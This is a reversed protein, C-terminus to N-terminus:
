PPASPATTPARRTGSSCSSRAATTSTPWCRRPRTRAATPRCRAHAFAQHGRRARDQAAPRPPAQRGADRHRGQALHGRGPEQHRGRHGQDAHALPDPRRPERRGPERGRLVEVRRRREQREPDRPGPRRRGARDAAASAADPKPRLVTFWLAGIVLLAGLAIRYPLSIQEVDRGEADPGFDQPSNPRSWRSSPWSACSRRRRGAGARRDAPRAGSATKPFAIVDRISDRGALMAVIRDIGLAIGGHPPAGYRLADLLFGFRASRRRRTSARAGRLGAGPGRADHIRISGGGIESGDLSSTTARALAARRPRRPRGDARHVPPADRDLAGRRRRARVDPLRRGLARRPPRRDISASASPRAGPAARRAGGRRRARQRRRVAAPRGRRRGLASTSPPSRSPARPVERDAGRWGGDSRSSRGAVAKRATASSSTTSGTSSRARCRARAPTSRASSAAAASCRSSSRSSALRAARRSVDAIELGFRPRAPRLRLAADGRRLGDAAVAAAAVDFGASARLGREDRAEMSTSSTTRTSSAVDRPRAPHVRAPPRRAPGRRPLLPRDPLLARLRRDDAAAQLAAAVAAARLVRRAAPAVPVLFDRAGEPTSRTLIPTEIELFDSRRRARRADDSVVDTACCSRTACRARPAPRARPPAPAADRRGDVDEDIPFPPTEARRRPRELEAVALEIEGTPSTRTSTRRRRARRGRGARQRRARPAAARRLPSRRPARTPTSSSSSSARLPRAPRHLDARRPRPPPPGLRRRPGDDGVRAADCRRRAWADRYRTPARPAECGAGARAPRPRGRGRRPCTRRSAPTWTACGRRRRAGRDCRLARGRRDAQKLQGKLSRGALEMSRARARRARAEAALAFAECARRRREHAVYLDVAAAGRRRARRRGAADARGRGGLRLGPTPPGGLMSSSRRRLARRRRRRSQAGLADSTFEFVTRTYYDLGRVLTPDIEYAVGARTSCRASRPSTSPTTPTSATSCGRRTAGDGRAHRPDDADFARLPNLDIRARVEDRSSTRTRACTPAAAGRPLRRADDPTGLRASGCACAARRRARRLLTACCCSRSPTSPRTTPASRRPASRGSSATAAPRRAERRPLLEVPVLAEGAAAAQAHRARRLRPLGARHGRPAADALARRRRRLTYM